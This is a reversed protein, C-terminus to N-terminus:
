EYQDLFSECTELVYQLQDSTMAEHCGIVFASEMADNGYEYDFPTRCEIDEFGPHALINGSWLSRTQVGETELHEVIDRREFPAADRVTLPFALWCTEVDERVEPLLFWESRANFFSYLEEFHKKRRRTFEKLKQLQELGFAASAELPLFNYGVKDFVFKADYQVGGLETEFREDLGMGEDVASKRGWARLKKMRDMHASEDTCVMGGGGLATIVHSAYFSTTSIDAFSGTPEGDITAGLTDASDEVLFINHDDAIERLRKWDPVNGVLNPVLIAETDASVAAAVQDLNAQYTAPEIDVFVPILDNQVLPSVTTSFTTIPTIVEAGKNLDLAEIAILNASSGSNVMIGHDKDFQDSVADEFRSTFEGNVLEKPRDLVEKVAEKEAEGYNAEAYLVRQEDNESNVDRDSMHEFIDRSEHIVKRNYSDDAWNHIM